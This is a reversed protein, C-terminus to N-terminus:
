LCEFLNNYKIFCMKLRCNRCTDTSIAHSKYEGNPEYINEMPNHAIIITAVSFIYIFIFHCITQTYVILDCDFCRHATISNSRRLCNKKTHYFFFTADSSFRISDDCMCKCPEYVMCPVLSYHYASQTTLFCRIHHWQQGICHEFCTNFSFIFCM